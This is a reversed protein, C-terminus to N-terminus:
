SAGAGSADQAEGETDADSGEADEGEAEAPEEALDAEDIWGAKVRAALILEEIQARTLGSGDLIGDHRITEKEKEKRENWGALDDTACDALDEVTKINSEGLTVLM